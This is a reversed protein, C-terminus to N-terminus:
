NWRMCAASYEGIPHHVLVLTSSWVNDDSNYAALLRIHARFSWLIFVSSCIGGNYIHHTAATTWIQFYTLNNLAVVNPGDITAAALVCGVVRRSRWNYSRMTRIKRCCPLTVSRSVSMMHVIRHGSVVPSSASNGRWTNFTSHLAQTECSLTSLTIFRFVFGRKNYM